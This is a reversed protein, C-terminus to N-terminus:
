DTPSRRVGTGSPLDLFDRLWLEVDEMTACDVHGIIGVIRARDIARPQETMAFSPRGLGVDAGRLPVHNPWERDVATVPVIIALSTLTDLYRNSAVVLVPRRGSQERGITPALEAWVVCGRTLAISETKKPIPDTM